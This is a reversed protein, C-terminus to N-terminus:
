LSACFRWYFSTLGHFSQIETVTKPKPWSRIAEVKSMDMSLGKNSIVYGLFLVQDVGFVCKQRAVFLVEKCLGLLVQRLHDVHEELYSSFVLINDFYVVVFRGIYPRLAQNMVRMFTSPVNSMGFPM